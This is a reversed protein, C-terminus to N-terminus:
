QRRRCFRRNVPAHHQETHMTHTHQQSRVQSHMFTLQTDDRTPRTNLNTGDHFVVPPLDNALAVLTPVLYDFKAMLEVNAVKISLNRIIQTAAVTRRALEKETGEDSFTVTCRPRRLWDTIVLILASVIDPCEGVKMEKAAGTGSCSVVALQSLAWRVAVFSTSELSDLMQQMMLQKHTPPVEAATVTTSYVVQRRKSSFALEPRSAAGEVESTATLVDHADDASASAEAAVVKAIKAAAEEAMVRSSRRRKESM